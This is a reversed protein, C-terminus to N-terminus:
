ASSPMRSGRQDRPSPSTYLLCTNDYFQSLKNDNLVQLMGTLESGQSQLKDVIKEAGVQDMMEFPGQAWNFGWKMARDINVIDNSIEPVLAAAYTFTESMIDWAFQGQADEAFLLSAIDQHAIDLTVPQLARWDRDQLDFVQMSKSGDDAKLMKYFGGGTKRGLQGNALM